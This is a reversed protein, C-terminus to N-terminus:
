ADASMCVDTVKVLVPGVWLLIHVFCLWVPQMGVKLV